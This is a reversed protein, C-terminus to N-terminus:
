RALYDDLCELLLQKKEELSHDPDVPGYQGLLSDVASPLDIFDPSAIDVVSGAEFRRRKASIWVVMKFYTTESAITQAFRYAVASKGKGGDGALLCRKTFRNSFIEKLQALVTDRGIFDQYISDQTPLVCIVSESNWPSRQSLSVIQPGIQDARVKYGLALLIQRVDSLVGIAEEVSVDQDVPHSLPDRFDKVAKMAGSLKPRNPKDSIVGRKLAAQFLKEYYADFLTYFHSVSLLDYDDKVLTATGGSSRSDAAAIKLDGM